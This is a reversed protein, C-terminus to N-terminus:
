VTSIAEEQWKKILILAKDTIKIGKSLNEKVPIIQLNEVGGLNEPCIGKRYGYIIPVIHDMCFHKGRLEINLLTAANSETIEWVKLYYKMVDLSQTRHHKLAAKKAKPCKISLYFTRFEELKEPNWDKGRVEITRTPYGEDEICFYRM